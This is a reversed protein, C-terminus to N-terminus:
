QHRRLGLPIQQVRAEEQRKKERTILSHNQEAMCEPSYLDGGISPFRQVLSGVHVKKIELNIMEPTQKPLLYRVLLVVTSFNTFFLFILM